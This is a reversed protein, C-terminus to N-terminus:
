VTVPRSANQKKLSVWTWIAGAVDIAGFAIIVPSVYGALAFMLFSLFVFVRTPVTLRCFAVDNSSGSRHYYYGLCCALVGVVRIWVENTDPIQVTSLILNPVAILAIGLLYLYFGFYYISKAAPSM